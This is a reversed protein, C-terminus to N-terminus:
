RRDIEDLYQEGLAKGHVQQLFDGVWEVLHDKFTGKILQHLIDPSIMEHIDARPFDATFPQVPISGVRCHLYSFNAIPCVLIVDNIGYESWLELPTLAETLEETLHQSRSVAHLNTDDLNNTM